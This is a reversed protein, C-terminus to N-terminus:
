NLTTYFVIAVCFAVVGLSLWLAISAAKPYLNPNELNM